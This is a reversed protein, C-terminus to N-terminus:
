FHLFAFTEQGPFYKYEKKGFLVAVNKLQIVNIKLFNKWSNLTAYIVNGRGIQGQLWLGPCYAPGFLFHVIINTIVHLTANSPQQYNM